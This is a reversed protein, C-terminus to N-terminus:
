HANSTPNVSRANKTFRGSLALGALFGKYSAGLYAVVHHIFPLLLVLLDLQYGVGLVVALMGRVLWFHIVYVTVM